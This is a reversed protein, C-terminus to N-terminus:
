TPLADRFQTLREQLEDCQDGAGDDICLQTALAQAEVADHIRGAQFLAYGRTDEYMWSAHGTQACAAEALSVALGVDRRNPPVETLITWAIDNRDTAPVWPSDTLQKAIGEAEARKGSQLTDFYAARMGPIAAVLAATAPTWEGAEVAELV